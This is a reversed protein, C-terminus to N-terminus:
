EKEIVTYNVDDGATSSGFYLTKNAGINIAIHNPVLNGNTASPTGGNNFSWRVTGDANELSVIITYDTTPASSPVAYWTNASALAITGDSSSGTPYTDEEKAPNIATGGSDKLGIPDPARMNSGFTLAQAKKSLLSFIFAGIGVAGITKLFFRKRSDLITKKEETNQNKNTGGASAQTYRHRAPKTKTVGDLPRKM